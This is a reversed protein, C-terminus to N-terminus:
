FPGYDAPYKALLTFRKKFGLFAMIRNLFRELRAIFIRKRAEREVSRIIERMVHDDPCSKGHSM